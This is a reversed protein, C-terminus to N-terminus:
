EHQEVAKVLVHVNLFHYLMLGMVFRYQIMSHNSTLIKAEALDILTSLALGTIDNENLSKADREGARLFVLDM